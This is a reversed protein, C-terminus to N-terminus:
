SEMGNLEAEAFAMLEPYFARFRAVPKSGELARTFRDLLFGTAQAYLHQLQAVAAAADTFQQRGPTDPTEVPLYRSDTDM